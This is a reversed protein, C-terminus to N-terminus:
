KPGNTQQQPQRSGGQRFKGCDRRWHGFGGCSFCQDSPATSRPATVGYNYPGGRFPASGAAAPPSAYRTATNGSNNFVASSSRKSSGHKLKISRLARQEAQRIRKEDESDSALDDSVYEKVTQWGAPSKDALRILKNRTGNIFIVIAIRKAATFFVLVNAALQTDWGYIIAPTISQSDSNAKM